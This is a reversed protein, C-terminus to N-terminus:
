KKAKEMTKPVYNKAETYHIFTLQSERADYDHLFCVSTGSEFMLNLSIAARFVFFEYHYSFHM